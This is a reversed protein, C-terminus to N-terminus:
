DNKDGKIFDCLFYIDESSLEEVRSSLSINKINIKERKEDNLSLFSNIKKRKSVFLSAAKKMKEFEYEEEKRKFELLISDVNPVPFFSNKGIHFLVKKEFNLDILFNLYTKKNEKIIKVGVEKQMMLYMKSVKRQFILTKIIKSTIYYPLNSFVIVEDEFEKELLKSLNIKLIDENIIITNEKTKNESLYSYLNSDIEIAVTKKNNKELFFTLSGLGPGIELIQKDKELDVIKKIDKINVLFNQGYKKEIKINEEKIIEKIKYRMNEM